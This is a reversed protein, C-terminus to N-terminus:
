ETAAWRPHLHCADGALFVRGKGYTDAILKHAQWVDTELVEVPTDERGLAQRILGGAQEASPPAKGRLQTSFFWTDGRDMPGVVAPADGNVLWYFIARAQPHSAFLGPAHFIAVFNAMYAHDGELTAGILRRTRSRGGDAGVVYGARIHETRSMASDRVTAVVGDDSQALETMEAGFRVSVNPLADLARRLVAEVTYQPISQAPSPFTPRAAAIASSRTRSGPWRTASYGRAFVVDTPYDPPLPSADRIAEALGWRRFHAMSRINTTKARPQRGARDNQEVVLVRHGRRAVELALSLGVPGAGVVLVDISVGM